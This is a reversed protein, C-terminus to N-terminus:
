QRYYFTLWEKLALSVQKLETPEPLKNVEARVNDILKELLAEEAKKLRRSVTPQSMAMRAALEQQSLNEGYFLQLIQQATEDLAAVAGALRDNLQSRQQQREQQAEQEIAAELLSTAVPDALSDQIEGQEQGPKTKNLSDVTPYLYARIWRTLKTLRVEIQEATLKATTASVQQHRKSNYLDAIAGWQNAEPPTLKEVAGQPDQSPVAITKFCIWAFQYEELENASVGAQGLVETIRKQSVKRLLSWDSCVDIARRQRLYDKLYNTLVIPAYSKLNTGFNPNFGKLVRGTESSILQFYDALTFELQSFRAATKQATWYCSEQLYATLHQQGTLITPKHSTASSQPQNVLSQNALSQNALSQNALSETQSQWIKYWYLSWVQESMEANPTNVDALCKQMNRRLRPDPLWQRVRDGELFAFTSFLELITDRSRM